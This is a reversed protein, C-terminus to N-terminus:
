GAAPEPTIRLCHAPADTSVGPPVTVALGRECERWPLPGATGLLEIRTGSTARLPLALEGGRAPALVTVFLAAAGRTFRLARGDPTEDTARRWPRTGFVAEGHVDLWAGLGHLRERQLTPIAGDAMPGVGILLNGNKSVVDVLLHVLAALSLTEAEGERANYGFSPGLGRATEWKYPTVDDPSAYEPTQYDGFPSPPFGFRRFRRPLLPWIVDGHHLAATVLRHRITGPEPLAFRAWRDNAVGDPVARYYTDLLAPLDIRVPFGVDNWLVDPRYREILERVQAECYRAYDESQPVALACDGLTRIVRDEFTVDFGGCYYLGMRLGQARTATAVAGVLDRRACWGPRRPNAHASPWLPFGDMHKSTLVVYRAGARAFLRAWGDPDLRAAATEFREGFQAYPFDPGWTERHHRWTPSGPIRMTNVYWEAYPNHRFYHRPGQTAFIQQIDQAPEAWAPVSYPGWHVFVGLKADDFWRPLKRTRATESAAGDTEDM